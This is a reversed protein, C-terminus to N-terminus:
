AAIQEDVLREIEDCVQEYEHLLGIWFAEWDAVDRGQAATQDIRCFGDELRRALAERRRTLDSVNGPRNLNQAIEDM